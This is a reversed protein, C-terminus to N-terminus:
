RYQLKCLFIWFLLNTTKEGDLFFGVVMEGGQLAFSTGTNNNGAGFQPSLFHAWPLNEDSIGGEKESEGAHYGLM